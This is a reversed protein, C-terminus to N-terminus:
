ICNLKNGAAHWHLSNGVELHALTNVFREAWFINLHFSIKSGILM